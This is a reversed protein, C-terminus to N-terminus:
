SITAPSVDSNFGLNNSSDVMPDMRNAVRYSSFITDVLEFNRIIYKIRVKWYVACTKNNSCDSCDIM